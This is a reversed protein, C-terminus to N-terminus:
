PRSVKTEGNHCARFTVQSCGPRQLSSKAVRLLPPVRCKSELWRAIVGPHDSVRFSDERRATKSQRRSDSTPIIPLGSM